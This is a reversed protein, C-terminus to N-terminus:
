NVYQLSFALLFSPHFNALNTSKQQKPRFFKHIEAFRILLKSVISINENPRLLTLNVNNLM